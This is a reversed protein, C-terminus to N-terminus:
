DGKARDLADIFNQWAKRMGDAAELKAILEETQEALFEEDIIDWDHLAKAFAEVSGEEIDEGTAPDVDFWYILGRDQTMKSIDVIAKELADESLDDPVMYAAPPLKLGYKEVLYVELQAMARWAVALEHPLGYEDLEGVDCQHRAVCDGHDNSRNWSWGLEAGPNHKQNGMWSLYAVAKMARPFYRMFGSYVPARKRSEDDDTVMIDYLPDTM